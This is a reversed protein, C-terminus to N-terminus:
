FSRMLRVESSLKGTFPSAEYLFGKGKFGEGNVPFTGWDASQPPHPLRKTLRADDRAGGKDRVYAYGPADLIGRGVLVRYFDLKLFSTM